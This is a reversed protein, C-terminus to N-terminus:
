SAGGYRALADAAMNLVRRAEAESYAKPSLRAAEWVFATQMAARELATYGGLNRLAVAQALADSMLRGARRRDIQPTM